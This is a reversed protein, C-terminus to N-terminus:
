LPLNGRSNSREVQSLITHKQKKEVTIEVPFMEPQQGPPSFQVPLPKKLLFANKVIM